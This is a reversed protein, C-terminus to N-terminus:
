LIYRFSPGDNELGTVEGDEGKVVEGYKRDFKKNEWVLLSRLVMALVANLLMFSACTWMGMKYYPADTAPYIRTGLLPGCQGVLNLIV